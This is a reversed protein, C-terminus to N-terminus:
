DKQTRAESLIATVRKLADRIDVLAKEARGQKDENSLKSIDGIDVEGGTTGTPPVTSKDSPKDMSGKANPGTAPKGQDVEHGLPTRGGRAFLTVPAIALTEVVVVGGRRRIPHGTYTSGLSFDFRGAM